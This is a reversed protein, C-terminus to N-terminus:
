NNHKFEDYRSDSSAYAQIVQGDDVTYAYTVIPENEFVVYFEYGWLDTLKTHDYSMDWNENPYTEELHIEVLKEYQKYQDSVRQPITLENYIFVCISLIITGYFVYKVKKKVFISGVLLFVIIGILLYLRITQEDM